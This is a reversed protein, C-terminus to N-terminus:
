ARLDEPYLGEHHLQSLRERVLPVDGASTVGFWGGAVPLVRVRCRGAGLGAQVAAPLFFEKSPDHGHEELYTLFEEELLSFVEPTFGWLNMSVPQGQGTANERRVDLHERIGTLYGEPDVECFGRSYGGPGPLTDLLEYSQLAFDRSGTLLFEAVASLAQRGYFDDANCVLFPSTILKRAAWLAHGTGWPKERAAPGPGSVPLVPLDELRQSVLDIGLRGSWPRVFAEQFETENEGAIVLV